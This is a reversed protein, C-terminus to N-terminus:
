PQLGIAGPISAYTGPFSVVGGLTAGGTPDFTLTRIGGVEVALVTGALPGRTVAVAANPLQVGEQGAEQVQV